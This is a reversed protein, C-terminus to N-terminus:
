TLSVFHKTNTSNLFGKPDLNKTGESKLSQNKKKEGKLTNNMDIEKNLNALKQTIEIM